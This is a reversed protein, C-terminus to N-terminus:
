QIDKKKNILLTQLEFLSGGRGCGYCHFFELGPHIYFSGTKERHFPCTSKLTRGAKRLSIHDKFIEIVEDITM